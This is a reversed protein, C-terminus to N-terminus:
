RSKFIRVVRDQEVYISVKDGIELLSYGRNTSFPRTTLIIDPYDCLSIGYSVTDDRNSIKRSVVVADANYDGSIKDRTVKSFRPLGTRGNTAEKLLRFEDTNPDTTMNMYSDVFSNEATLAMFEERVESKEWSDYDYGEIHANKFYGICEDVPIEFEKEPESNSIAKIKSACVSIKGYGLPKGMGISHYHDRSNFLTLASVLAGLEFPKFNFFRIKGKFVTGCSLPCIAIASGVLKHDKALLSSQDPLTATDSGSRVPYYKRGNVMVADDDWKKGGQVYLPYYSPHPTGLILRHPKSADDMDGEVFFHGVHVRGKLASFNGNSERSYGFMCEALDPGKDIGMDHDPSKDKGMYLEPVADWVSKKYPFKYMSALGVSTVNGNEDNCFFVPIRQRRILLQDAWLKMWDESNAHITRFAEVVKDSVIHPDGVPRCPFIFEHHKGPNRRKNGRKDYPSYPNQQGTLVVIGDAYNYNDVKSVSVVTDIENIKRLAYRVALHSTLVSDYFDIDKLMKENFYDGYIKSLLLRYKAFAIKKADDKLANGDKIHSELGPVIDKILSVNVKHAKGHNEIVWRGQEDLYMWGCLAEKMSDMYARDNWDRKGFSQNEVQSFKGNSIIEVTSRLMGKVSSGPIFYRTKGEADVIHNFRNYENKGPHRRVDDTVKIKSLGNRVFIPSKATLTVDIVGNLGDEFPMEFSICEAWKPFFVSGALPIFNYPARLKM